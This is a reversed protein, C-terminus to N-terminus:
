NALLTKLKRALALLRRDNSEHLEQLPAWRVDHVEALQPVLKVDAPAVALYRMDHHLHPGERKAPNEPVRHTDIDIPVGHTVCWPHLVLGEVATEESVERVASDWFEGPLEFHGGPPLWKNLFKHHILLVHTMASNLVAASTTVHGVMNSRVFCDEPANLQAALRALQDTEDPFISLYRALLDRAIPTLHQHM